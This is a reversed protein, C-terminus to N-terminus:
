YDCSSSNPLTSHPPSPLPPSPVPRSPLPPSPVPPSFLPPSHFFFSFLRFSPSLPHYTTSILYPSPFHLLPPVSLFFSPLSLPGPSYQINVSCVNPAICSFHSSHAISQHFPPDRCIQNTATALDLPYRCSLFTHCLRM